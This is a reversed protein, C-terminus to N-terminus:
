AREQRRQRRAARMLGMKYLGRAVAMVPDDPVFAKGSFRALLADRLLLAGGGVILTTAFRRFARGWLREVHGNIEATWVPLADRYDLAGSRLRADLEGRSYLGAPDVLELLRRVGATESTKFREVPAGDRLVLLELTNMGISIVGIEQKFAPKREPIFTGEENLLYDFLAGAAQSTVTIRAVEVEYSRAKAAGNEVQWRHCGTMAAKVGSVINKSEDLTFTSQPLGVVSEIPGSPPGYTQIYVSFAGWRLASNEPSHGFREDDLNEIPRGHDHAGTGVHFRTGGIAVRMPVKVTRLGAVDAHRHRRTDATVQAPLEIGGRRGYLKFGGVGNNEGFTDYDLSRESEQMTHEKKPNFTQKEM